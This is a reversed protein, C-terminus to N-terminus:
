AAHIEDEALPDDTAAATSPSTLRAEGSSRQANRRAIARRLAAIPELARRAHEENGEDLNAFALVQIAYASIADVVRRLPETLSIPPPPTQGATHIGLAEGYAAHAAALEDLFDEGVLRDLDERLDEEEILDLRRESEAHEEIYPLKLFELGTPFLQRRLEEARTRDADEPDFVAYRDLSSDVVAWARDIRVDYPRVDDTQQTRAKIKWQSELEELAAELSQAAALVGPGPDAPVLPLLMRGLSLGSRVSLRPPRVFPRPDLFTNM